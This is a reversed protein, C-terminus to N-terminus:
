IQPVPGASGVLLTKCYFFSDLAAKKHNPLSDTAMDSAKVRCSVLYIFFVLQHIFLYDLLEFLDHGKNTM